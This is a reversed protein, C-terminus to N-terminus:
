SQLLALASAPACDSALEQLAQSIIFLNSFDHYARAQQHALQKILGRGVGAGIIPTTTTIVGRSMLLAMQEEIRRQQARSLYYAFAHMDNENFEATDRGVLRALRAQSAERTKPRGDATPALDGRCDGEPLDQLIRRVDAMTAFSENVLPTWHGRIPAFQVYAQPIGRSFGAYVLEGHALRSADDRGQAIVVNNSIPILDTTTSGMDILLGHPINQAVFDASIRWNASAILNACQKVYPFSVFQSKATYFLVEDTSTLRAMLSAILEVGTTRNPFVDSLEATMTIHHRDARGIEALTEEVVRELHNFGLHPTCARQVVADLRGNRARAAKIHAGGIDWGIVCTM